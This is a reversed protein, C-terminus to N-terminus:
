IRGEVKFNISLAVTHTNTRAQMFCCDGLNYSEFMYLTGMKTSLVMMFVFFILVM